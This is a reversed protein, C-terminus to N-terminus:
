TTAYSSTRPETSFILDEGSFFNKRMDWQLTENVTAIITYESVLSVLDFLKIGCDAAKSQSGFIAIVMFVFM